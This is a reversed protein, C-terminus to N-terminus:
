LRPSTPLRQKVQAETLAELEGLMQEIVQPEAKGAQGQTIIVAMAAVTPAELLQRLPIEVQWARYVRTVIQTALLSHGGLDLFNDLVGVHELGLVEAWIGVLAAEVPTRPAVFPTALHPRTTSPPPLAQYDVKGTSTLPLTDLLTFAAPTM